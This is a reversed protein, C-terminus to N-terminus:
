RARRSTRSKRVQAHVTPPHPLLLGTEKGSNKGALANEILTQIHKSEATLIRSRLKLLVQKRNQLSVELVLLRKLDLVSFQRLVLLENLHAWSGLAPGLRVYDEASIHVNLYHQLLLAHPPTQYYHASM